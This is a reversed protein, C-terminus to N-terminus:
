RRCWAVRSPDFLTRPGNWQRRGTNVVYPTTEWEIGFYTRACHLVRFEAPRIRATKVRGRHLILAFRWRLSSFLFFHASANSQRPHNRWTMPSLTNEINKTGTFWQYHLLFFSSLSLPTREDKWRQFSYISSADIRRPLPVRVWFVRWPAIPRKAIDSRFCTAVETEQKWAPLSAIGSHYLRGTM